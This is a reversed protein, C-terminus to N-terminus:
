RGFDPATFSLFLWALGREAKVTRSLADLCLAVASEAQKEEQLAETVDWVAQIYPDYSNNNM